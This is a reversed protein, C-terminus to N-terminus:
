EGGDDRQPDDGRGSVDWREEVSPRDLSQLLLGVAASAAALGGLQLRADPSVVALALAVAGSVVFAAGSATM